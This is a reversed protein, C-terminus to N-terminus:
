LKTEFLLIIFMWNSINIIIRIKEVIIISISVNTIMAYINQNCFFWKIKFKTKNFSVFSSKKKLNQQRRRWEKSTSLLLSPWHILLFFFVYDNKIRNYEYILDVVLNKKDNEHQHLLFHEIFIWFNKLIEWKIENKKISKWTMSIKIKMLHCTIMQNDAHKTIKCRMKSIYSRLCFTKAKYTTSDILKQFQFNEFVTIIEDFMIKVNLLYSIMKSILSPPIKKIKLRKFFKSIKMFKSFISSLISWWILWRILWSTSISIVIMLWKKFDNKIKVFNLKEHKKKKNKMKFNKKNWRVNM